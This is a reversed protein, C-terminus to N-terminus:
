QYWGISICNMLPHSVAYSFSWLCRIIGHLEYCHNIVAASLSEGSRNDATV